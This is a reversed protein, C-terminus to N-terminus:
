WNIKKIWNKELYDNAKSFHKSWLFGRYSWLPSPHSTELVLNKSSDILKAKSKAFAWWLLFVVNKKESLKTIIIDSFQEWWIKRHSAPSSEEVTLIANLMLVWQHAWDQLNWSRVGLGEVEPCRRKDKCSLEGQEKSSLPTSPIDSEIEKYINKLSPPIKVWEQVSFSLWHAQWKWHYPDQGLIVVKVDNFNTSNLANFINKEEPFITKWAKKESVLFDEIEKIYPKQLEETLIKKWSTSLTFM